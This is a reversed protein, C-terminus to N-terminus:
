GGYGGRGYKAICILAFMFCFAGGLIIVGVIGEYM